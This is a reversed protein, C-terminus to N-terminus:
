LAAHVTFIFVAEYLLLLGGRWYSEKKFICIRLFSNSTISLAIPYPYSFINSYSYLLM